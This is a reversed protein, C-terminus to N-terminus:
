ANRAKPTCWSWDGTFPDEQADVPGVSFDSEQIRMTLSSTLLRNDFIPRLAGTRSSTKAQQCVMIANGQAYADSHVAGTEDFRVVRVATRIAMGADAGYYRARCFLRYSELLGESPSEPRVLTLPCSDKTGYTHTAALQTSQRVLQRLKGADNLAFGADIAGFLLTILLPLILTFEVLAAGREASERRPTASGLNRVRFQNSSLPTIALM